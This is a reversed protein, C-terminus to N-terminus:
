FLTLVRAGKLSNCRPHAIRLNHPAHDGGKSIPIVHDLTMQRRDVAKRCLWCRGNERDYIAQPDVPAVFVGSKLARRRAEAKRRLDRVRDPNALVWRKKGAKTQESGYSPFNRRKRKLYAPLSSPDRHGALKRKLRYARAKRNIEERRRAHRRRHKANHADRKHQDRLHQRIRERRRRLQCEPCSRRPNAGLFVTGCASCVREIPTIDDRRRPPRPTKTTRRKQTWYQRDYERHQRLQCDPCGRRPNAALFVAGCASCTREVPPRGTHQPDAM